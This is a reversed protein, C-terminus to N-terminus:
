LDIFNNEPLCIFNTPGIKVNLEKHHHGFIWVDPPAIDFMADLAQSTRSKDSINFFQTRILQPCEHSLVIKPKEEEYLEIAASLEAYTLEEEEFFDKGPTRFARDISFAGRVFFMGEYMGYDGLSFGSSAYPYYDHNGMINRHRTIDVRELVLDYQKKFGLDGLQVSKGEKSLLSFYKVLEGHVDGIIRM